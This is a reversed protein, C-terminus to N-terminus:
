KRRLQKVALHYALAIGGVIIFGCALWGSVPHVAHYAWFQQSITRHTILVSVGEFIGLYIALGIWFYRWLGIRWFAILFMLVAAVAVVADM